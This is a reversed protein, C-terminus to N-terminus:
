PIDAGAPDMDVLAVGPKVLEGVRCHVAGIVGDAPARIPLEMKMAELIVLTDGKRVRAGPAAEVRVVTAPMPSALPAHAGAAARRRRTDEVEFEYVCGDLFVWRTSGSAVAWARRGDAGVRLVAAGGSSVPMVAADDITVGTEDATTRYGREGIRLVVTPRSM